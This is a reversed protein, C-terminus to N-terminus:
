TVGSCATLHTTLQGSKLVLACRPCLDYGSHDTIEPASVREVFADFLSTLGEVQLDTSSLAMM